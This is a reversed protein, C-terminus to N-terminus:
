GPNRGAICYQAGIPAWRLYKELPRLAALAHPFFLRYRSDAIQWRAAKLNAKLTPESMLIANADFVCKDVVRRTLPNWPNHEFIVFLGGPKTVRRIESFWADHEAPPIHHFVCATFALDFFHDPLHLTEDDIEVYTEPGPFRKRSVEMSKKSVDACTVAASPFYKRFWPVSGGVGSGFDLIREVKMRQRNAIDAAEAIKYEAFFEPKEGSVKLCDSAMAYYEDAFSDFEAKNPAAM